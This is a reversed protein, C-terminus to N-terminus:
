IVYITNEDYLLKSYVINCHIIRLTKLFLVFNIYNANITIVNLPSFLWLVHAKVCSLTRLKTYLCHLCFSVHINVTQYSARVNRAITYQDISELSAASVIVFKSFM